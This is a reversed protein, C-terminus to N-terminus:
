PGDNRCVQKSPHQQASMEPAMDGRERQLLTGGAASPTPRSQGGALGNGRRLVPESSTMPGQVVCSSPFQNFLLALTVLTLGREVALCMQM